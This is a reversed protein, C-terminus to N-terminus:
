SVSSASLEISDGEEGNFKRVRGLNRRTRAIKDKFKQRRDLRGSFYVWISWVTLVLITLPITVAWYLWFRRNVLKNEAADWDFMPM